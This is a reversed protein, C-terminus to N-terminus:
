SPVSQSLFASVFRTASDRSTHLYLSPEAMELEMLVPYGGSGRVVDVRAYLPARGYKETVFDIVDDGLEREERSADRPGIDEETYLGNKANDGTALIAGKRFAHSYEGNFYLMGTEGREDIFRQYPQVMAVMGRDVLQTIHAAASAPVNVHRETNNSGASITPKVVVDGKILDNALVLDEAGHVYTTPIVPINADIMEQLYVKDTNWKIIDASNFVTTQTSANDLWELFESYRRHYDWPSRVIAARYSSWAIDANDWDVIDTVIGRDGFARVLLPLDTDYDRAEACSVLAVKSSM